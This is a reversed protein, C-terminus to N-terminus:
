LLKGSVALEIARMVGRAKNLCEKYELLPISDAVIGAGVQLYMKNGQIYLSRITIAMDMNGSFGFYGVCGGYAGRKTPELGDIIEMARVKPSGSLTGAPFTARIVDFANKGNQLRAQVNSVIHMVHSYREVTMFEDVHVTGKVAVRGLDNRGLDVLMVHEAREKPDELLEKELAADEEENHGRRRTGAIPRLSLQGEELRVMTEPSAGVLTVDDFHLYFMYPSPNIVRLARYLDFSDELSPFSFRQSLVAQIADGEVIYKKIREVARQYRASSWNAKFAMPHTKKKKQLVVSPACQLKKGIQEIRRCCGEYEKHLDCKEAVVAHTIIMIRHEVNDFILLLRPLIFYADWAKLDDKAQCPLREFFHVMDYGLYGVAGGDFRPLHSAGVVRHRKVIHELEGFPDRVKKRRFVGKGNGIEVNQGRSRFILEPELGIFSYRAWKERGEVSELLFSYPQKVKCYVSVPTERDALIEGVVSVRPGLRASKQFTEFPTKIM